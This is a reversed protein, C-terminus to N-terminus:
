RIQKANPKRSYEVAITENDPYRPKVRVGNDKTVFQMLDRGTERKCVIEHMSSECRIVKGQQTILCNM